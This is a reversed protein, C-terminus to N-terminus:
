SYVFVLHVTVDGGKTSTGVSDVNLYIKNGFSVSYNTTNVTVGSEVATTSTGMNLASSFIDRTAVTGIAVTLTLNAGVAATQAKARGFVCYAPPLLWLVETRMLTDLKDDGTVMGGALYLTMNSALKTTGAVHFEGLPSPLSVGVITVTGTAYSYIQGYYFDGSGATQRYKCPYGPVFIGQNTSNDTVTITSSSARTFGAADDRRTYGGALTDVYSKTTFKNTSSPTGEGALAAKEDSSPINASDFYSIAKKRGTDLRYYYYSTM